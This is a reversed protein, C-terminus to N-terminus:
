TVMGSAGETYYKFPMISIPHAVGSVGLGPDRQSFNDRM